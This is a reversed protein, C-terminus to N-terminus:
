NLLNYISMALQNLCCGEPHQKCVRQCTHEKRHSTGFHERYQAVFDCFPVEYLRELFDDTIYKKLSGGVRVVLPVQEYSRVAQAFVTIDHGGGRLPVQIIDEENFPHKGDFVTQYFAMEDARGRKTVSVQYLIVPVTAIDFMVLHPPIRIFDFQCQPVNKVKMEFLEMGFLQVMMSTHEADEVACHYKDQIKSHYPCRKGMHLSKFINNLHEKPNYISKRLTDSIVQTLETHTIFIIKPMRIHGWEFLTEVCWADGSVTDEKSVMVIPKTKNLYEKM